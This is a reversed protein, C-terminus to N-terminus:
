LMVITLSSPSHFTALTAAEIRTGSRYPSGSGLTPLGISGGGSFNNTGGPYSLQYLVEM